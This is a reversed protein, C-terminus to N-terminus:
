HIRRERGAGEEGDEDLNEFALTSHCLIVIHETLKVEISNRKSQSSHWLDFYREINIRIADPISRGLVFGCFLSVLFVM